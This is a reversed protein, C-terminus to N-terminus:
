HSTKFFEEKLYRKIGERFKDNEQLYETIYTDIDFDQKFAEECKIISEETVYEAVKVHNDGYGAYVKDTEHEFCDDHLSYYEEMAEEIGQAILDETM